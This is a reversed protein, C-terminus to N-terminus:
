PETHVIVEAIGGIRQRLEDELEGALRHADTLSAAPDVLLTLFLVHGADTSILRIRQPDSGTRERVLREIAHATPLEAGDDQTRAVLPRELPELHTQVDSVGPRARIAHEVREAIEHASRLDLEAPFKLHLSVSSSGGQEFIIIDHAEKVLPESLAIALVRDRLDLGQRRPEVHVVVDSGPLARELAGEVLDAARHGEVVAQGPPVSVVVDAFYRGASERLRLRDLEVDEGLAAIAREAVSRAQMPARDMLVNANEAILRGATVFIIAAVLLAALSDGDHFGANIALLGALVVLSGAMDAAFHAANSRLAASDERRAAALSVSMRGAELILAVGIVALEYWHVRPASGAGTLRTIAEVSVLVGGGLLIAAEGLAGLNEARRHGYPHEFDAPRGGLKVAFFTLVAAIVDGSSEIGSSSLGLSGTALGAGLKLLVLLAAAAVSVLTSARHTLRGTEGMQAM